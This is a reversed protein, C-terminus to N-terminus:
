CRGLMSNIATKEASTISLGWVHKVHVWSKAYTCWYGTNAPKWDEPGRDGKDQNSRGTAVVLQPSNLDNAFKGRKTNDWAHAGSRWANALPIFHDITADSPNSVWKEDYVSFWRGATPYCDAGTRVNEGDRKLVYERTTCQADVSSWHPFKKRSYGAKNNQPAVKLETLEQRVKALEPPPPPAAVAPAAATGLLAALVTGVMPMRISRM